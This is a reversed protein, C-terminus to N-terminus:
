HVRAQEVRNIAGRLAIVLVLGPIASLVTIVFFTSWGVLPVLWAALPGLFVRGVASLSSL